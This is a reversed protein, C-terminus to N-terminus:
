ERERLKATVAALLEAAIADKMYDPLSQQQERAAAREKAARETANETTPLGFAARTLPVTDTPLMLALTRMRKDRGSFNSGKENHEALDSLLGLEFDIRREALLADQSAKAQRRSQGISYAAFGAAIVTGITSAYDLWAPTSM